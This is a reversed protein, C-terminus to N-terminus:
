THVDWEKRQKLFEELHHSWKEEGGYLEKLMQFSTNIKEEEQEEEEMFENEYGEKVVKLPLNLVIESLVAEDLNITDKTILYDDSSDDISYSFRIQTDFNLPVNVDLLSVSCVMLLEIDINLNFLYEDYSVEYCEGKIHCKIVDKIDEKVVLENYLDYDYEFSFPKALKRLQPIAWKM